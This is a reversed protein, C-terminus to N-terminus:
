LLHLILMKVTKLSCVLDQTHSVPHYQPRQQYNYGGGQYPNGSPPPPHHGGYSGPPNYGPAGQYGGSNYPNGGYGWSMSISRTRTIHVLRNLYFYCQIQKTTIYVHFAVGVVSCAWYLNTNCTTKRMRM